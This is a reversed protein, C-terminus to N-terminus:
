LNSTWVRRKNGVDFLKVSKVNGEEIQFKRELETESRCDMM